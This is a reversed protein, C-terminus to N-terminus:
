FLSFIAGWLRDNAERKEEVDRMVEHTPTFEQYRQIQNDKASSPETQFSFAVDQQKERTKTVPEPAPEQSFELQQSLLADDNLFTEAYSQASVLWLSAALLIVIFRM